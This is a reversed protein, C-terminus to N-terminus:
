KFLVGYLLLSSLRSIVQKCLQIASSVISLWSCRPATAVNVQFTATEGKYTVILTQTGVRTPDFGSVMDATVPVEAATGDNYAATIEAGTPDLSQGQVYDINAPASKITIGTVAKAAVNVQFTVTEGEYTVTLTQTGAKTPDFGSVMDATVPVEAATGDNYAATIEAGTPDLSQGQVYETKAPASKITIGTVAKATAVLTVDDISLDAAATGSDLYFAVNIQGNTVAVTQSVLQYSSSSFINADAEPGGFDTLQMQCVAPTGQAQKAYASVTYLGNDLGTVLQNLKQIFPKSSSFYFKYNGDYVDSTGVSYNYRAFITWGSANASEFGGNALSGVSEPYPSETPVTGQLGGTVHLIACAGPDLTVSYTHLNGLDTHSWLDRVAPYGSIGLASYFNLTRTQATSERNFLGVVWSGDPLQGRWYQSYTNRPDASFPKAVLGQSRLTLLESNQYFSANNGITDYQDAINLPAGSLIDLSVASKKQDDTAFTNLRLMDADPIMKNKGFYQSWYVLGDFASVFQTWSSMRLGRADNSYRQWGGSGCDENVRAMDGYQLETEGNNFLNPMVLSLEVGRAKCEDSMWKLATNYDQTGHPKCVHNGNALGTEYWSLFDVRLFKVDFDAFYDVYGKIYQEAGPKEVDVWYMAGPSTFNMRDGTLSQPNSFPYAYGTDVIDSIKTSTGIVTKSSDAVANPSVWLPNYYVGLDLGDNHVYDALDQWTMTWDDNYSTIYGNGNTKTSQEIWGDTCVMHYGYSKFNNAIWDTNDLFRQQAIPKNTTFSSEYATWYLPGVGGEQYPDTTTRLTQAQPLASGTASEAKVLPAMNVMIGLLSVSLLSAMSKRLVHAIGHDNLVRQFKM